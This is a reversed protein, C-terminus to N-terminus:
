LTPPQSLVWQEGASNTVAFNTFGLKSHNTETDLYPVPCVLELWSKQTQEGHKRLTDRLIRAFWSAFGFPLLSPRLIFSACVRTRMWETAHGIKIQNSLLVHLWADFRRHIAAQLELFATLKEDAHM